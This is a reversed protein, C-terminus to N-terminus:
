GTTPGKGAAYRKDVSDLVKTIGQDVEQSLPEPRHKELIDQVKAQARQGMNTAGAATWQELTM